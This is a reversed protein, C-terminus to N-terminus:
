SLLTNKQPNVSGMYGLLVILFGNFGSDVELHTEVACYLDRYIIVM